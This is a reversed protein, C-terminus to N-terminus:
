GGKEHCLKVAINNNIKNLFSCTVRNPIEDKASYAYFLNNRPKAGGLLGLKQKWIQQNVKQHFYADKTRWFQISEQRKVLTVKWLQLKIPINVQIPNRNNTFITPRICQGSHFPIVGITFLLSIVFNQISSKIIQRSSIPLWIFLHKTQLYIQMDSLVSVMM